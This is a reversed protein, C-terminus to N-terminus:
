LHYSFALVVRSNGSRFRDNGFTLPQRTTYENVILSAGTRVSIRPKLRYRIYGETNLSGRDSQDGILANFATLHADQRTGSLSSPVPSNATFTGTQDPGVTFGILDLNAGIALRRSIAYELNGSINLSYAQTRPIFLTDLNEEIIPVFLGLASPHGPGKALRSPATRYNTNRGFAATFRLGFGIRFRRSQGLGRLRNLSLSATNFNGNTTLSLDATLTIRSYDYPNALLGTLATQAFGWIPLLLCVTLFGTKM